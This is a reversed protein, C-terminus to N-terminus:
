LSLALERGTQKCISIDNDTPNWKVKIGEGFISFNGESLTRNIFDISTPSWGYSGFGLGKKNTLNLHKMEQLLGAISFLTGNNVAPSGICVAKSRFIETILDSKDSTASNFIKVDINVNAEAIGEAIAEAMRRTSNYMTDYIITIQNASYSNAWNYYDEIISKPNERWILGHAPCIMEVPLNLGRLEDIKKMVKPSFPAIICAFYKIAEYMLVTNDVKDAFMSDSAFHQGFVDSSFLINEGSLHCMMTDPWHLMPAEMFTIERKGTNLKEGSKVVQFNWNSHYYGELSKKGNASCIVPVNPIKELLAPLAGSHDPEGHTSIVYDIENLDIIKELESVFEESYPSWVSDILVKKEDLILYSNYSSGHLTSLEEGHFKRLDSDIKGTWIIDDYLKFAM